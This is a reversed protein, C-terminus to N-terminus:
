IRISGMLTCQLERSRGYKASVDILTLAADSGGVGDYWGVQVHGVFALFPQMQREEPRDREQTCKQPEVCQPPNRGAKIAVLRLLPHLDNREERGSRIPPPVAKRNEKRMDPRPHIGEVRVQGERHEM